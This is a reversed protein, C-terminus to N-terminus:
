YLTPKIYRLYHQIAPIVIYESGEIDMKILSINFININYNKCWSEITITDVEIIDKYRYEM